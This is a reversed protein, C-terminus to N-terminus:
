HAARLRPTNCCGFTEGRVKRTDWGLTETPASGRGSNMFAQQARRQALRACVASVRDDQIRGRLTRVAHPIQKKAAM